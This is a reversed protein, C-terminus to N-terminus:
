EKAPEKLFSLTSRRTLDALLDLEQINFSSKTPTNIRRSLTSKAIGTQRAAEAITYGSKKLAQLVNLAVYRNSENKTM